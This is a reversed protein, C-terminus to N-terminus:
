RGAEDDRRDRHWGFAILALGVAATPVIVWHSVGTQPILDFPNWLDHSGGEGTGGGPSGGDTARNEIVFTDGERHAAVTYGDPVDAEVVRWTSEADLDGWVHSWGNRASLDCEDYVEGDRLLQVTVREPRTAADDDLWFKAVEVRTRVDDTPLQEAEVKLVVSADYLWRGDEALQPVMVLAPEQAYRFGGQEVADSTVLYMGPELHAFSVSGSADTAASADAPLGDRAAYGSLAQAAARWGAADDNDLTVGYSTYPDILDAAGSPTVDAVRRVEVTAGAVAVDGARYSVALSGERGVDIDDEGWAARVPYACLAILALLLVVAAVRRPRVAFPSIRLETNM